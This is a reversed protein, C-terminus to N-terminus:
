CLKLNQKRSHLTGSQKSGIDFVESIDKILIKGDASLGTSITKLVDDVIDKTHNVESLLQHSIVIDIEKM